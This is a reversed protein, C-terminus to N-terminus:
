EFEEETMRFRLIDDNGCVGCYAERLRGKEMQFVYCPSECELCLLYEVDHEEEPNPAPPKREPM